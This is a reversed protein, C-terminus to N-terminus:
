ETDTIIHMTGSNNAISPKEIDHGTSDIQGWSGFRSFSALQKREEEEPWEIENQFTIQMVPLMRRIIYSVHAVSIGYKHKLQCYPPYHRLWEMTLLIENEISLITLKRHPLHVKIDQCIDLFKPVSFGTSYRFAEEDHSLSRFIDKARSSQKRDKREYNGRGPKIYFIVIIMMMAILLLEQQLYFNM